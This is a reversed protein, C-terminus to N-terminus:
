DDYEINTITGTSADITIDVERQHDDIMSIEYYTHFIGHEIDIETITGGIQEKVIESVQQKSYHVRQAISQFLVITIVVVSIIMLLLSAFIKKRHKQILEM